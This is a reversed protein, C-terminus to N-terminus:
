LMIFDVKSSVKKCGSTSFVKFNEPYYLMEDAVRNLIEATVPYGKLELDAKACMKIHSRELPLFPIFYDILHRELLSSHWFGTKTTKGNLEDLYLAEDLPKIRIEDRKKGEKWHTLVEQSILGAGTNSLFIFISRRFDLGEVEHHHDLYPKLVDILGYPMKDMEDFIFLSRPCGKVSRVILDKLKKKYDKLKSQHPFDHTAIVLHVYKSDMGKRFLHEAIIKSVFNKGSGTWGNFSFALAKGPSKNSLHGIIAKSVTKTVLHQGFVRKQLSLQLGTINPSTWKGSSCCEKLQCYIKPGLYGMSSLVSPDIDSTTSLQSPGFVIAVLLVLVTPILFMVCPFFYGRDVSKERIDESLQAKEGTARRSSDEEQDILKETGNSKGDDSSDSSLGVDNPVRQPSICSTKERSQSLKADEKEHSEATDKNAFTVDAGTGNVVTTDTDAENKPNKKERHKKPAM